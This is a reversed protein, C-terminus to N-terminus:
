FAAATYAVGLAWREGAVSLIKSKELTSMIQIREGDDQLMMEKSRDM